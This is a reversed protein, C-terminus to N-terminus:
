IEFEAMLPLHDSLRDFHPPAAAECQRVELNRFYIRDLPLLPLWSPFTRAYQGHLDRHAERLTSVTELERSAKRLWDNFDGAIILPEDVGSATNVRDTLKQLQKRAEWGLFGFHICMLHLNKESEPLAVTAHLISRSAKKWQSVNVNENAIIPFRSLIASGHHGAKYVANKAYSYHPWETDALYELQSEEWDPVKESYKSHAEQIEQIFVIDADIKRIKERLEHLIYRMNM